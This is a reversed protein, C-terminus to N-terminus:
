HKSALMVGIMGAIMPNLLVLEILATTGIM